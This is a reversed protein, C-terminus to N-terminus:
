EGTMKFSKEYFFIIPTKAPQFEDATIISVYVYFPLYFYFFVEALLGLHNYCLNNLM